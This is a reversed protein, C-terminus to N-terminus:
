SIKRFHELRELLLQTYEKIGFPRNQGHVRHQGIFIFNYVFGVLRALYSYVVSQLMIFENIQCSFIEWPFILFQDHGFDKLDIKIM